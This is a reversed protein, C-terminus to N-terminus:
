CYYMNAEYLLIMIQLYIDNITSLSITYSILINHTLAIYINCMFAGQSDGSTLYCIGAPALMELVIKVLLSSYILHFCLNVSLLTDM